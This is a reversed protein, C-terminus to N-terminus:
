VTTKDGRLPGDGEDAQDNTGSHREQDPEPDFAALRRLPEALRAAGPGELLAAHIVHELGLSVSMEGHTLPRLVPAGAHGALRGLKLQGDAGADRAQILAHVSGAKLASEVKAFGSQVLGAKRALGLAGMAQQRLVLHTRDALDALGGPPNSLKFARTFAKRRVADELTQRDARVWAGRGPLVAKVDPVVVGEPDLVFRILAADDARERTVICQRERLPESKKTGTGM